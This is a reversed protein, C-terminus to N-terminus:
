WKAPAMVPHYMIGTDWGEWLTLFGNSLLWITLFIQFYFFLLLCSFEFHCSSVLHTKNHMSWIEAGASLMRSSIENFDIPIKIKIESTIFIENKM